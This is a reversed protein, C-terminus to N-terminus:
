EMGLAMATKREATNKEWANVTEPMFMRVDLKKIPKGERVLTYVRVPSPKETSQQKESGLVTGPLIPM